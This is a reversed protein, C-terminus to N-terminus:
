THWAKCFDRYRSFSYPIMNRVERAPSDSFAVSSDRRLALPRCLFLARREAGPGRESALSCDKLRCAAEDDKRRDDDHQIAVAGDCRPGPCDIPRDAQRERGAHLRLQQPFLREATRDGRRLSTATALSKAAAMGTEMATQTFAIFEKGFVEFSRAVVVSSEVYADMNGRGLDAVEDYGTFVSSSAKEVQEQTM